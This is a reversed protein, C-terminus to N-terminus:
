SKESLLEALDYSALIWLVFCATGAAGVIAGFEWGNGAGASLWAGVSGGIAACAATILIWTSTKM